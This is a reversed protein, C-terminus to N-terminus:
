ICVESLAVFTAFVGPCLLLMMKVNTIIMSLRPVQSGPLRRAQKQVGIM